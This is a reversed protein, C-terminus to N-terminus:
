KICTFTPASDLLSFKADTGHRATASREKAWLGSMNAHQRLSNDGAGPMCRLPEMGRRHVGVAGHEIHTFKM